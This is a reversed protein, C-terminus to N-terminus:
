LNSVRFGLPFYPKINKFATSLNPESRSIHVLGEAEKWDRLPAWSGLSELQGGFVVGLRRQQFNRGQYNVAPSIGSLGARGMGRRTLILPADRPLPQQSLWHFFAPALTQTFLRLPAAGRAGGERPPQVGLAKAWHRDLVLM